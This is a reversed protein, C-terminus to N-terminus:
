RVGRRIRAQLTKIRKDVIDPNPYKDRLVQYAALAERMHGREELTDAVFYQARLSTLTGPFDKGIQRMAFLALDYRKELYYSYGVLYYAQPRLPSKPEKVLLDRVEMRAQDMKGMQLNLRALKMRLWDRRHALEDALLLQQYIQLARHRTDKRQAYVEALNLKAEYFYRGKPYTVLLRQYQRAAQDLDQIYYQYLCAAWYLSGEALQSSPYLEAVTIFNRAADQYRGGKWLAQAKDSLQRAESNALCGSTLLATGLVVLLLMGHALRRLRHPSNAM